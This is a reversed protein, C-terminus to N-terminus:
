EKGQGQEQGDKVVEVFHFGSALAMYASAVAAAILAAHSSM